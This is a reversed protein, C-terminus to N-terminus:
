QALGAPRDSLKPIPKDRETQAIERKAGVVVMTGDPKRRVAARGKASLWKSQGLWEGDVDIKTLMYTNPATLHFVHLTNDAGLEGLPTSGSVVRGLSYTAITSHTEDDEVRAYATLGKGDQRFTMISYTRLSGAGTQGDPVGVKKSWIKKGDTIEVKLLNSTFFKKAEPLYIAARVHYTAFSSLPYLNTLNVTRKMAQGPPILLPDLHYNMEYPAIPTNGDKLIEFSFWPQTETDELMLEHGSNNVISVTAELPEHRVWLRRKIDLSVEIQASAQFGSLLFLIAFLTKM